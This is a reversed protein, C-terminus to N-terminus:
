QSDFLPYGAYSEFGMRSLMNDGPYDACIDRPVFQFMQGVVGQCPTGCLDYQMNDICNGDNCIALTQIRKPTSDILKGIFAFDVDLSAALHRAISQFIDQGTAGTVGLAVNRLAQEIRKRETIDTSIGCVAYPAGHVDRLPFKTSLYIREGDPTQAREEFEISENRTLVRADNQRFGDAIDAPFIEADTRGIVAHEDLGFLDSFRHNVFLYHGARDKVYVVATGNDLIQRLWANAADAHDPFDSPLNM